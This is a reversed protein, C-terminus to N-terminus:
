TEVGFSGPLAAGPARVSALLADEDPSPRVELLASGSETAIVRRYADGAVEEVGPIARLAFFGLMTEWNYPRRFPLKLTTGLTPLPRRRSRRLERPARGYVDRIVANFRRVSSFGSALAVETMPLATDDLLRKALLIRETM